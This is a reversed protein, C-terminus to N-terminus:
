VKVEVVKNHFIMYFEINTEWALKNRKERLLELLYRPNNKM